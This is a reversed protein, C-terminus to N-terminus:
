GEMEVVIQVDLWPAAEPDMVQEVRARVCKGADLLRALVANHRRPIYGVKRNGLHVAIADPDHPNEPERVLALVPQKALRYGTTDDCHHGTGAIECRLLEITTALPVPVTLGHGSILSIANGPLAILTM